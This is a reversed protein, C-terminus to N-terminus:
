RREATQSKKTRRENMGMPGSVAVPIARMCGVAHSAICHWTVNKNKNAIDIPCLSHMLKLTELAFNMVVKRECM